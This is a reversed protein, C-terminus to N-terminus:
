STNLGKTSTVCVYRRIIGRLFAAANGSDAVGVTLSCDFCHGKQTGPGHSFERSDGRMLLDKVAILNCHHNM